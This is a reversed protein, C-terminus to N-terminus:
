RQKHRWIALIAVGALMLAWMGPEPVQDVAVCGAEAGGISLTNQVISAATLRAGANVQTSGTGVIADVTQSGASILVTGDNDIALNAATANAFTNALELIGAQGIAIASTNLISGTVKFRGEEVTTEGSYTNVATLTLTGAGIKNLTGGSTADSLVADIAGMRDLDIDFAHVGTAALNLVLSNTITLDTNANCNHITGENWIFTAIGSGKTITQAQLTGGNSINCTGEANSGSALILTRANVLGGSGSSGGINLNGRGNYGVNLNGYITWQSGSGAVTADGTFSSAFGLFGDHGTNVQGGAEISLTGNGASGVYFDGSLIWASGAGSITVIGISGSSGGVSGYGSSVVAGDMVNLAGNGVSLSIGSNWISGLGTITATGHSTPSHGVIGNTSYVLGKSKCNLIGDGSQGVVLRECGIASGSVTMSGTSGASYGLFCPNNEGFFSVAAGAELNLAGSGSYGVYMNTVRWKSGSGRINVIGSSGPERGLYCWSNTVQGGDEINMTGSGAKGITLDYSNNLKSNAGTITAAGKSGPMYGLVGGASEVTVGDAIRLTGSGKHGVGLAHDKDLSLELIGDNGFNIEQQMGHTADFIIDADLVAGKTRIIGSGKLNSLSAYLTETIVTGGNLTLTGNGGFGVYLTFSNTWLSNAGTVTATGTSGSNYGLYCAFNSVYGGSLINLTGSGSYGVYLDSSNIWKSDAGTITASGTSYPMIGLYGISNGVQGGAEINLKGNGSQGLYLENSNFWKSDAGTVTATGSSGVCFGVFCHQNSVRGGAEINLKGGGSYGVFLDYDNIWTSGADTVTVSGFANIGLYSFYSHLGSGGDVLVTGTSSRGIYGTTESTWTSLDFPNVDGSGTIAAHATSKPFFLIQMFCLMVGLVFFGLKSGNTVKFKGTIAKLLM